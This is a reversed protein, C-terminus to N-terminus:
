LVPLGEISVFLCDPAAANQYPFGAGCSLSTMCLFMFASLLGTCCRKISVSSTSWVSGKYYEESNKGKSFKM